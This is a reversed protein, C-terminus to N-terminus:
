ESWTRRLDWRGGPWVGDIRDSTIARGVWPATDSENSLNVYRGVLRQPGNRRAEILYRAGGDHYMIFVRDDVTKVIASGTSWDNVDRWRSSWRGEISDTKAVAVEAWATANEDSAGGPVKTNRAFEMVDKGFPRDVDPMGFPNRAEAPKEVGALKATTDVKVLPLSADAPRYRAVANQENYLEKARSPVYGDLEGFTVIGNRDADARGQLAEVAAVVFCGHPKVKSPGGGSSGEDRKCATLFSIRPLSAKDRPLVGAACCTDLLVIVRGRSSSLIRLLEDGKLEGSKRGEKALSITYGDAATWSGHTSFFVIALDNERQSRALNSLARVVAAHTASPGNVVESHVNRYLPKAAELAAAMHGADRAYPDNKGNASLQPEVGVCLVFLDGQKEQGRVVACPVALFVVLGLFCALTRM